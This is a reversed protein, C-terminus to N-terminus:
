HTPIVSVHLYACSVMHSIALSAQQWTDMILKEDTEFNLEVRELSYDTKGKLIAKAKPKSIATDTSISARSVLPIRQFVFLFYLSKLLTKNDM